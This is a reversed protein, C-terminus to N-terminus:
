SREPTVTTGFVIQLTWLYFSRKHQRHPKLPSFLFPSSRGSNGGLCYLPVAGMPKDEVPSQNLLVQTTPLEVNTWFLDTRRGHEQITSRFPSVTWQTVCPM